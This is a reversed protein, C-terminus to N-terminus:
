DEIGPALFAEPRLQGLVARARAVRAERLTPGNYAGLDFRDPRASPLLRRLLVRGDELEVLADRGLLAEPSGAEGRAVLLVTGPPYVPMMADGDVHYALLLEHRLRLSERGAPPESRVLGGEAIRGLVPVRPRDADRGFLLYEPSTELVRALREVIERAPMYEDREYPGIVTQHRGVQRALEVQTMGKARRLWRLRAGFTSLEGSSM